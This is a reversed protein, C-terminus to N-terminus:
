TCYGLRHCSLRIVLAGSVHDEFLATDRDRASIMVWSLIAHSNPGWTVLARSVFSKDINITEKRLSDILAVLHM